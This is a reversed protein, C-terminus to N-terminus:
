RPELARRLKDTIAGEFLRNAHGHLTELAPAALAPTTEGAMFLDFDLIFKPEPDQPANPINQKVLGPGAHVKARCSSDLATDFNLNCQITGQEQVDEQSLIGLYPDAFLERWPEDELDLAKRSFLNIYRLGIRQFFAPQYLRIFQALPLDLRQAFEEWGGYSLTSLSIFDKTLNLKWKNDMSVFTYNTVPPQNEVQPSGNAMNIKPPLRDQKVAYRPFERRIAEQFDAPEQSGISLISPFRIQCIVERLQSRDYHSRDRSSFLM